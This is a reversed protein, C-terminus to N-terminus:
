SKSSLTTDGLYPTSRNGESCIASPLRVTGIGVEKFGSQRGCKDKCCYMQEIFIQFALLESINILLMKVQQPCIILLHNTHLPISNLSDVLIQSFAECYSIPLFGPALWFLSCSFVQWFQESQLSREWQFRQIWMCLVGCLCFKSLNSVM